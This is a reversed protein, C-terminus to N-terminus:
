IQFVMYYYFISYHIDYIQIRLGSTPAVIPDVIRIEEEALEPLKLIQTGDECDSLQIDEVEYKILKDM